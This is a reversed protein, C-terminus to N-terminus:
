TLSDPGCPHDPGQVTGVDVGSIALSGPLVGQANPNSLYQSRLKM